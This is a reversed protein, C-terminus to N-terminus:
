VPICTIYNINTKHKFSTGWKFFNGYIEFHFAFLTSFIALKNSSHEENFAKGSMEFQFVSFVWFILKKNLKQLSIIELYKLISFLYDRQYSQQLIFKINSSHEDKFCISFIPFHVYFLFTSKFSINVDNM